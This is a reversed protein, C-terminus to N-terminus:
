RGFRQLVGKLGKEGGKKEVEKKPNLQQTHKKMLEQAWFVTSPKEQDHEEAQEPSFLESVKGSGTLKEYVAQTTGLEKYVSAKIADLLQLVYTQCNNTILNYVPQRSRISQIVAEGLRQSCPKCESTARCRPRGPASEGRVPEGSPTM